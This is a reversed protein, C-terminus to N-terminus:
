QREMAASARIPVPAPWRKLLLPLAVRLSVRGGASRVVLGNRLYSPLASRAATEPDAGVAQARAAV